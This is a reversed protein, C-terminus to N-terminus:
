EHKEGNKWENTSVAKCVPEDIYVFRREIMIIIIRVVRVKVLSYVWFDNVIPDVRISLVRKNKM